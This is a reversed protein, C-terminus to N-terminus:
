AAAEAEVNAFTAVAEDVTPQWEFFTLLGCISLLHLVRNNGNVGALRLDGGLARLAQAEGILAGLCSSDLRTVGSLDVVVRTKGAERLTAVAKRFAPGDYTGFFEGRIAVVAAHYRESTRLTM